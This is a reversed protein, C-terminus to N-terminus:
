YEVWETFFGALGIRRSTNQDYYDSWRIIKGDDIQAVSVGQLSIPLKRQFAGWPVTETATIKWEAVAFEGCEFTSILETVADPFLEVSRQFFESLRERETFELGLAYDNFKFADAFQAAAETINRQNLATLVSKLINAATATRIRARGMEIVNTSM